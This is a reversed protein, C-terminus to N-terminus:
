DEKKRQHTAKNWPEPGPEPIKIKGTINNKPWWIFDDIRLQAALHRFPPMESLPAPRPLRTIPVIGGSGDETRWQPRGFEVTALM